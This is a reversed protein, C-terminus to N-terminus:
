LVRQGGTRDAQPGAGGGPPRHVSRQQRLHCQGLIAVSRLAGTPTNQTSSTLSTSLSCSLPQSPSPSPLHSLPFLFPEHEDAGMGEEVLRVRPEERGGEREEEREEERGRKRGREGMRARKRGRKGGEGRKGGVTLLFCTNIVIFLAMVVDFWPHTVQLSSAPPLPPTESTPPTSLHRDAESSM